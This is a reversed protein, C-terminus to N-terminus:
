YIGGQNQLFTADRSQQVPQPGAAKAKPPAAAALEEHRAARRPETEPKFAEWIVESKPDDSPWAGYVQQGSHRDIRVMRIGPPQRFPVVPLDMLAAKAFQKFIPAVITGGQAYGGMPRPQDFGMYTAALVQPMGGVFWVNTPGSTTGTKGFMPRNLDRLVAATGRLVVGEMIHVMQYATLPDVIQKTRLPPRPMPKGDWDPANCGECPRTDARYIVKGNRDEVYDVLSPKVARGSNALISFANAMRLPTTEGAGLAISLYNPFDGVGLDHARKTVKDMGIENATRVTMLNRSQEVAWRMTQPGANQGSFNRFCKNGLGAGQWVCFPGDIIISSPTMGNDLAASYVVPKFTSGPQRYAQTARNFDDDRIDWGGQMALIRGSAVEEVVMAGRVAPISKLAWAAGERKVAIVKGPELFNFAATGTGRKPMVALSAPLTGRGGDAFGITANSGERSLVVAARWDSYGTGFPLNALEAAWNKTLDVTKGPDNWGHPNDYRAMGDRLAQEAAQQKQADYSSRIWLGGTYVGDPGKETGEGYRAILQRRVEEMFYGGVNHVTERQTTVTGLPAAQAAAAQESTIFGNKAMEGLVWNRRELAREPRVNPDYNSPGKPLIALFAAEPLSLQNVDKDFYARAAAEVGYANRGLFIQNLYLELIQQKTLVNEIRRALIAEKIKRTVSYQNGVLLNKAVQQTITSGGRAREGTGAKRVYDFVAQALGGYDIGHHSFFSKDEASLFADILKPPFENYSLQVRRERAFTQVPQGNIDRVISPLPPQYTLLSEASPLGRAFILLLLFYLVFPSAALIALIKVWRRRWAARVIGGFRSGADRYLTIRTATPSDASM